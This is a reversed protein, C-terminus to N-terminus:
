IPFHQELTSAGKTIDAKRWCSIPMKEVRRSHYSANDMVVVSGQPLKVLINKFWEEFITADMEKHYDGNKNSEFLMLGDRGFGESSGIHIIILRRSKGFSIKLGTSWGELFAESGSRINQDQWVKSSTHGENLWIQDLYFISKDLTRAKKIKRLKEM